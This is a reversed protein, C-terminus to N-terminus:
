ARTAPATTSDDSTTAIESAHNSMWDELVRRLTASVSEQRYYRKAALVIRLHDAGLSIGSGRKKQEDTLKQYAM